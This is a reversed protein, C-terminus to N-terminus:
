ANHKVPYQQLEQWVEPLNCANGIGEGDGGQRSGGGVGAMTSTM